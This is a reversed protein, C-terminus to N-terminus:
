SGSGYKEILFKYVLEWDEEGSFGAKDEFIVNMYPKEDYCGYDGPKTVIEPNKNTHHFNIGHKSFIKHYEIIEHPHSCTYLIMVIEPQKVMIQLSEICYKYFKKPVSIDQYDPIIMTGHIDFFFYLKEWGRKEKDQYAKKLARIISM